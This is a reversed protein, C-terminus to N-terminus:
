GGWCIRQYVRFSIIIFLQLFLSCQCRLLPFFNDYTNSPLFFPVSNLFSGTLILKDAYSRLILLPVSRLFLVEGIVRTNEVFSNVFQFFLLTIRLLSFICISLPFQSCRFDWGNSSYNGCIFANRIYLWGIWQVQCCDIKIVFKFLM